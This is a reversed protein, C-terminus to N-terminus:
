DESELLKAFQINQDYIFSDFKEPLEISATVMIKGESSLWLGGKETESLESLLEGSAKELDNYFPHELTVKNSCLFLGQERLGMAAGGGDYDDDGVIPCNCEWAMHRRLQHYRGTKPKLEVTTLVNDIAQISNSYRTARWATVASKEDLVSNIMQWKSAIDPNVDFGIRHAELASIVTETPEKPIGNVIATYTKKVKRERFQQSLNVMAPMTKAIILLGSTPKDLRHVPKPRRLTSYTGPKPPLVAFPLAARVTMFGEGGGRKAYVVIGAPKNVIAFHDDEFVVPLEFPPKQHRMAPATGDAIRVQICIVDGPFVRDGVRARICNKADLKEEGSNTEDSELPGRHILIRAKRCSKRAYSKSAYEEPDLMMLAVPVSINKSTLELRSIDDSGVLAEVQELDFEANQETKYMKVIFFGDMISPLFKKPTVTSHFFEDNGIDELTKKRNGLLGDSSTTASFFRATAYVNNIRERKVLNKHQSASNVHLPRANHFATKWYERRSRYKIKSAYQLGHCGHRRVVFGAVERLPSLTYSLVATSLMKMLLRANGRM